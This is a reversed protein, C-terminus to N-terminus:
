YPRGTIKVAPSNYRCKRLSEGILPEFHWEIERCHCQRAMLYQCLHQLLTKMPFLLSEKNFIGQPNQILDRFSNAPQFRPANFPKENNLQAITLMLEANFRRSLASRPLALLDGVTNLGLQKFSQQQKRNIELLSLDANLLRRQIETQDPLQTEFDPGCLLKAALPNQGIGNVATISQSRLRYDLERLLADYGKFLKYCGSIELWLGSSHNSPVSSHNLSGSDTLIVVPSFSYAVLALQQLLQQEQEIQRSLLELEPCLALATSISLDPEIGWAAAQTNCCLVRQINKQLNIIAIPKQAQEIPVQPLLTELPLLPFHLYLWIDRKLM